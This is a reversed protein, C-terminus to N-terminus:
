AYLSVDSKVCKVERKETADDTVWPLLVSHVIILSDNTTM